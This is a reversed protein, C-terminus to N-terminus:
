IKVEIIDEQSIMCAKRYKRVRRWENIGAVAGMIVVPVVAVATIVGTIVFQDKMTLEDTTKNWISKHEDMDIGGFYPIKEM